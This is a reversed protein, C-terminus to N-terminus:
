KEDKKKYTRIRTKISLTEQPEESVTEEVEKESADSEAKAEFGETKSAEVETCRTCNFRKDKYSKLVDEIEKLEMKSVDEPSLELLNLIFEGLDREEADQRWFRLVEAVLRFKVEMM